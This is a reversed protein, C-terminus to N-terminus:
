ILRRIKPPFYVEKQRHSYLMVISMTLALLLPLLPVFSSLSYSREDSFGSSEKEPHLMLRQAYENLAIDIDKKSLYRLPYKVISNDYKKIYVCGMRYQYFTGEVTKNEREINWTRASSEAFLVNSFIMLLAILYTQAKM